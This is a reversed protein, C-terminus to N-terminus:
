LDDRIHTIAIITEIGRCGPYSVTEFIVINGLYDSVSRLVSCCWAVVVLTVMGVATIVPAFEPMPWASAL